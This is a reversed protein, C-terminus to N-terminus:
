IVNQGHTATDPRIFHVPSEFENSFCETVTASNLEIWIPWEQARLSNKCSFM